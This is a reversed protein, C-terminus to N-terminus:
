MTKKGPQTINKFIKIYSNFVKKNVTYKRYQGDRKEILLDLKKLKALHHSTMNQPLGLHKQIEGVTLVEDKILCLIRLRSKDHVALLFNETQLIQYHEESGKIKCNCQIGMFIGTQNNNM